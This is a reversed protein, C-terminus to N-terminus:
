AGRKSTAAILEDLKRKAAGSDISKRALEIGQAIDNAKGGIYLACGANLLVIDRRAGTIKGELIGKTIEANTKSDGGVIESKNALRLNFQEPSITYKIIRDDRVECVTTSDSISIEDLKDNGYVIMASKVGLNILVRAIPELLNPDFVGLVIYDAKAPNALPGLINFVTRVGLQSRVPSVFRMASHYSQAFLFSIGTEELCKASSEATSTITVGLEELVDAAGCKSSVNRNGHKAVRMGAGAVVFASTTSINFSNALDGGTGVIDIIDNKSHIANMKRRMVKAFGTIESIAEGKMRLATLLAAIQANSAGDSMIINMAEYAEDETLNIKDTVKSIYKRLGVREAEPLPPTKEKVIDIKAINGLFNSIIKEGSKTLISEPHFQIGLTPHSKHCIAMIQGAGDEAIISICDPLSNRELILSHYRAATIEQSLGEFIPLDKNINILSSKGHLPNDALKTKGGFAEGIVQHGLCIGLIPIKGSFEKVVDISIGAKSPYSPGPSIIIADPNIDDIESITLEDNRAVIIYPHLKGISQYLNYTFSDYNDILLIM